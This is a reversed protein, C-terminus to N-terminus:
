SKFSTGPIVPIKKFDIMVCPCGFQEDCKNMQVCYVIIAGGGCVSMIAPALPGSMGAGTACAVIAGCFVAEATAQCDTYPSYAFLDSSMQERKFNGDPFKVHLKQATVDIRAFWEKAQSITLGLKPAVTALESETVGDQFEHLGKAQLLNVSVQRILTQMEAIDKDPSISDLKKSVGNTQKTCSMAILLFLAVLLLVTRTKM